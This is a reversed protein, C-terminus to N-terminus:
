DLIKELDKSKLNYSVATYKRYVISGSTIDLVGVYKDTSSLVYEFLFLPQNNKRDRVLSILKETNVFKYRGGYAKFFSPPMQEEKGNLKNRDFLVNDLVYLTDKALSRKLNDNNYEDYVWPDKQQKLNKEVIRLYALIYPLQFNRFTSRLYVQDNIDKKHFSYNATAFEPYLEIRCLSETLPKKKGQYSQMLSLYYHTNSYSFTSGSQTVTSEIGSIQFYAYKDTMAAYKGLDDYKIVEIPTLTWALPVLDKYDNIFKYESAPLILLCTRGKLRNTEEANLNANHTARAAAKFCSPLIAATCIFILFYVLSRCPSIQM